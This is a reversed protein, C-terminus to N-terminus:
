TGSSVRSLTAFLTEFSQKLEQLTASGDSPKRKNVAILVNMSAPAINQKVCVAPVHNPDKKTCSLFALTSTLDREKRFPVSYDHSSPPCDLHNSSPQTPVSHLLHLLAIIEARANAPHSMNALLIIISTSTLLEEDRHWVIHIIVLQKVTKDRPTYRQTVELGQRFRPRFTCGSV